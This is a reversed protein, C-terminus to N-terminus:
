SALYAPLLKIQGGELYICTFKAEYFAVFPKLTEWGSDLYNGGPGKDAVVAQDGEKEWEEKHGLTTNLLTTQTLM